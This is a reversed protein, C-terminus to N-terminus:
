SYLSMTQKLSVFALNFLIMLAIERIYFAFNFVGSWSKFKIPRKVTWFLKLKYFAVMPFAGNKLGFNKAFMKLHM